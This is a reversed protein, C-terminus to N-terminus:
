NEHEKSYYHYQPANLTNHKISQINLPVFVIKSRKEKPILFYSFLIKRFFSL